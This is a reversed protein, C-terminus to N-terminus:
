SIFLLGKDNGMECKLPIVRLFLLNSPISQLLQARVYDYCQSEKEVKVIMMRLDVTYKGGLQYIVLCKFVNGNGNLMFSAGNDLSVLKEQKYFMSVNFISKIFLPEEKKQSTIKFSGVPTYVQLGDDSLTKISVLSLPLIFKDKNSTFMIRNGCLMVKIQLGNSFPIIRPISFENSYFLKMEFYVQPFFLYIPSYQIDDIIYTGYISLIDKPNEHTLDIPIFRSLVAKMTSDFFENTQKAIIAQKTVLYTEIKQQFIEFDDIEPLLYKKIRKVYSAVYKMWRMPFLFMVARHLSQLIDIGEIKMEKLANSYNEINVTTLPLLLHHISSMFNFPKPNTPRMTNIRKAVFTIKDNINKLEEKLKPSITQNNQLMVVENVMMFLTGQCEFIFDLFRIGLDQRKWYHYLFNRIKIDKALLFPQNESPISTLNIKRKLLIKIIEFNGIEAAIHLPTHSNANIANVDAGSSILYKIVEINQVQVAAHLPTNKLRDSSNVLYGHTVYDSCDKASCGNTIGTILQNEVGKSHLFEICGNSNSTLSHQLPTNGDKDKMVLLAPDDIITVLRKLLETNGNKCALHIPTEGKNNVCSVTIKEDPKSKTFNNFVGVDNICHWILNGQNDRKTIDAGNEVFCSVALARNLIGSLILPTREQSDPIDILNKFKKVLKELDQINRTFLVAVSLITSNTLIGDTRDFFFKFHPSSEFVTKMNGYLDISPCTVTKEEDTAYNFVRCESDNRPSTIYNFLEKVKVNYTYTGTKSTFLSISDDVCLKNFLGYLCPTMYFFDPKDQFGYQQNQSREVNVIKLIAEKDGARAAYAYPSLGYKDLKTLNVENLLMQVLEADGSSCAYHLPNAGENNCDTINAKRRIIDKAFAVKSRKIARILLSDGDGHPDKYNPDFVLQRSQMEKFAWENKLDLAIWYGRSVEQPKCRPAIISIANKADSIIAIDLPSNGDIDFTELSAGYMLLAHCIEYYNFAAALHLATCKRYEAQTDLRKFFHSKPSFMLYSLARYNKLMVASHLSPLAHHEVLLKAIETHNLSYAIDLASYFKFDDPHYSTFSNDSATTLEYLTSKECNEILFKVCNIHGYIVALHLPTWNCSSTDTLLSKNASLIELMVVDGRQAAIHAPTLNDHNYFHQSPFLNVILEAVRYASCVAAYHLPTNGYWDSVLLSKETNDRICINLNDINDNSAWFHIAIAGNSLMHPTDVIQFSKLTPQAESSM